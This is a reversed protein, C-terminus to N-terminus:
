AREADVPEAVMRLCAALDFKRELGRANLYRLTGPV